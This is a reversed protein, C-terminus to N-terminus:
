LGAILSRGCVWHNRRGAVDAMVGAPEVLAFFLSGIGELAISQTTALPSVKM